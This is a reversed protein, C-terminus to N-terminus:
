SPWVQEVDIGHWAWEAAFSDAPAIWRGPIPALDAPIPIPRTTPDKM